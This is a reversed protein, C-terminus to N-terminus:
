SSLARPALMPLFAQRYAWTLYIELLLAVAGPIIGSPALWLHFAIINVLVPALLALALPVFRNLVLLVGALLQTGMILPFMYHTKM